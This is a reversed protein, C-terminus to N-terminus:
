CSITPLSFGAKRLAEFKGRSTLCLAVEPNIKYYGALFELYDTSFFTFTPHSLTQVSIETQALGDPPNSLLRWFPQREDINHLPNLTRDRFCQIIVKGAIFAEGALSIIDGDIVYHTVDLNAGGHQIFKAAIDRSTGPSSFTVVEKIWDILETAIIQAIAGGLCHGVIVAKQHTTQTAHILWTALENQYKIFQSLGIAKHCDRAIDDIAKNTGRLVLVPSRGAVTPLLGFARFEINPASFAQGLAYGTNCLFENVPKDFEPNDFIYAIEKALIEYVPHQATM